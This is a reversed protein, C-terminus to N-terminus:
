LIILGQFTKPLQTPDWGEGVEWAFGQSCPLQNHRLDLWAKNYRLATQAVAHLLPLLM